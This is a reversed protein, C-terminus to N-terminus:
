KTSARVLGARHKHPKLFDLLIRGMHAAAVVAAFLTAYQAVYVAMALGLTLADGDPMLLRDVQVPLWYFWIYFLGHRSVPDSFDRGLPVLAPSFIGLFVSAASFIPSVRM